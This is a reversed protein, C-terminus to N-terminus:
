YENGRKLYREEFQRLLNNMGKVALGWSLLVGLSNAVADLVEGARYGTQSQAIELVIGLAIFGGALWGYRPRPHLQAFWLMLVSYTLLHYIKDEWPYDISTPTVPL